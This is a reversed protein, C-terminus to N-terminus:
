GLPQNKTIIIKSKDLTKPLSLRFYFIDTFHEPFTTWTSGTKLTTVYGNEDVDYDIYGPWSERFNKFSTGGIWRKSLGLEEQFFNVQSGAGVQTTPYGNEPIAMNYLYFTDGGMIQIYNTVMSNANSRYSGDSGMRANNIWISYDTTNTDNPELMNIYSAPEEWLLISGYYVQKVSGEPVTLEKVKTFDLM